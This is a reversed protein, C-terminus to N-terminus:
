RREGAGFGGNSKYGAPTVEPQFYPSSWPGSVDALIRGAIAAAFQRHEDASWGNRSALEPELCPSEMLWFQQSAALEQLVARFQRVSEGAATESGPESTAHFVCFVTHNQRCWNAMPVLPALCREIAARNGADLLPTRSALDAEFETEEKWRTGAWELGLDVLRFQRRWASLPEAQAMPSLSAHRCALPEGEQDFRAYRRHRLDDAVDGENVTVLILDPALGALRHKLLLYETLPCAEPVGAQCVEVTVRTAQQLTHELQTAIVDEESHRLGLVCEDGLCLVRYISPPKPVDIEAGRLGYSNISVAHSPRDAAAKVRVHAFPKLELRHTWSPATIADMPSPKRLSIAQQKRVEIARIALEVGAVLLVLLLAAGLVRRLLTSVGRIM